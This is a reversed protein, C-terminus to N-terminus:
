IMIRMEMIGAYTIDREYINNNMDVDMKMDDMVTVHVAMVVTDVDNCFRLVNDYGYCIMMGFQLIINSMNSKGLDIKVM